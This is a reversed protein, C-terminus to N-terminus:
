YRIPINYRHRDRKGLTAQEQAWLALLVWFVLALDNKFYPVDVMGHILLYVFAPTYINKPQRFIVWFLWGFGLLGLIGLESWFNLFINHPYVVPEADCTFYDDAYLQQFGSLGAGLIPQDRLLNWTGEWICVRVQTTSGPREWPNVVQPTLNPTLALFALFLICSVLYLIVLFYRKFWTFRVHRILWYVLVAGALAVLGGTSKTGIFAITLLLLVIWSRQGRRYGWIGVLIVAIVPGLFLALANGNNFVGHARDWQHSTIIPWHFALQAIGIISLWVGAAVLSWWIFKDPQIETIRLNKIRLEKPSGNASPREGEVSGDGRDGKDVRNGWNWRGRGLVDVLILFVLFPEVFYARLIGLAARTDQAVWTSIAAAILILVIPIFIRSRFDVKPLRFGGRIRAVLWVLFTLWILLELLTTPWVGFYSWRIVYLPSLIITLSLFIIVLKELLNSNIM